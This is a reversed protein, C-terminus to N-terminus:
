KEGILFRCAEDENETETLVRSYKQRSSREYVTFCLGEGDQNAVLWRDGCSLRVHAWDGDGKLADIITM